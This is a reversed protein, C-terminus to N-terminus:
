AKAGSSATEVHRRDLDGADAEVGESAEVAHRQGVHPHRGHPLRQGLGPDTATAKLRGEAAGGISPHGGTM